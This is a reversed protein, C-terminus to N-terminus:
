KGQLLATSLRADATMQWQDMPPGSRFYILLTLFFSISVLEPDPWGPIFSMAALMALTLLLPKLVVDYSVVILRLSRLRSLPGLRPLWVGGSWLLARVAGGAIATLLILFTQAEQSKIENHAYPTFTRIQFLVCYLLVTLTASLVVSNGWSLRRDRVDPSLSAFTLFKGMHSGQRPRREPTSTQQLDSMLCDTAVCGLIEREVRLVYAILLAAIPLSAWPYELTAISASTLLSIVVFASMQLGQRTGAQCAVVGIRFVAWALLPLACCSPSIAIAWLTISLLGIWEMLPVQSGAPSTRYAGDWGHITLWNRTGFRAIPSRSAVQVLSWVGIGVSVFALQFFEFMRTQTRFEEDEPLPNWGELFGQHAVALMLSIWFGPGVFLLLRLLTWITDTLAL